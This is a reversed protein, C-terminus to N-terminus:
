KQQTTTQSHPPSLFDTEPGTNRAHSRQTRQAKQKEEWRYHLFQRTGLCLDPKITPRSGPTTHLKYTDLVRDRDNLSLLRAVIPRNADQKEQGRRTSTDIKVKLGTAQTIYQEAMHTREAESKEKEPLGFIILNTRRLEDEIFNQTKSMSNIRDHCTTLEHKLTSVEDTNTKTQDEVRTLRSNFETLYTKLGDSNANTEEQGKSIKSIAALISVLASSDPGTPPPERRSMKSQSDSTEMEKETSQPHGRKRNASLPTSPKPSIPPKTGANIGLEFFPHIDKTQTVQNGQNGKHPSRQM